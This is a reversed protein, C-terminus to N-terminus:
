REKHGEKGRKGELKQSKERDVKEDDTREDEWSAQMQTMRNAEKREEKVNMRGEKM